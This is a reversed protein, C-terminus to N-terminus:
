KILNLLENKDCNTIKVSKTRSAQGSVISVDHKKVGLARALLAVVAKNAKGDEPPATVCLKLAEGHLGAIRNGSAKPQVRVEVTFGDDLERINLM